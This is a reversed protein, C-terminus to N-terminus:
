FNYYAYHISMSFSQNMCANQRINKQIQRLNSTNDVSIFHYFSIPFSNKNWPPNLLFFCLFCIAHTTPLSNNSFSNQNKNALMSGGALPNQLCAQQWLWFLLNGFNYSALVVLNGKLLKLFLNILSNILAITKSMRCNDCYTQAMTQNQM